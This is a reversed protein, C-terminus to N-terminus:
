SRYLFVIQNAAFTENGYESLWYMNKADVSGIKIREDAVGNTWVQMRRSYTGRKKYTFCIKNNRGKSKPDMVKGSGCFFGHDPIPSDDFNAVSPDRFENIQKFAFTRSRAHLYKFNLTGTLSEIGLQENFAKATASINADQFQASLTDEMANYRLHGLYTLVNTDHAYQRDMGIAATTLNALTFTSTAVALQIGQDGLEPFLGHTTYLNNTNFATPDPITATTKESFLCAGSMAKLHRIEAPLLQTNWVSLVEGNDDTQSTYWTANTLETGSINITQKTIQPYNEYRVSPTVRGAPQDTGEAFANSNVALVDGASVAGLTATSLNPSVTLTVTAGGGTVTIDTVIGTRNNNMRLQDGVQVYYRNASDLSTADLVFVLDNGAGPDVVNADVVITRHAPTDEHHYYPNSDVEREWGMSSIQAIWPLGENHKNLLAAFHDPRNADWASTIASGNNATVTSM